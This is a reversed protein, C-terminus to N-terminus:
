RLRLSRLRLNQLLLKVAVLLALDVFPLSLPMTRRTPIMAMMRKPRLPFGLDKNRNLRPVLLNVQPHQNAPLQHNAPALYDVHLPHNVQAQLNVPFQLYVPTLLNVRLKLNRAHLDGPRSSTKKRSPPPEAAHSESVDRKRKSSNPAAATTVPPLGSM